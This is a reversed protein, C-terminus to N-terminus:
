GRRRATPQRADSRHSRRGPVPLVQSWLTAVGAIVVALVWGTAPFPALKFLRTLVPVEVIAVVIAAYVVAILALVRTPRRRLGRTVLLLGFEGILLTVFAFARAEAVPWARLSVLYSALVAAALTVGLLLPEVGDRGFLRASPDRPPRTMLDADPPDSEFVLSVIPQLLIQLLVLQVPLLLLPEDLLPIVLAALLLPPHFAILYTFARRLSDFIQRGIAVAGVITTFDDDLLVMTAAERAVETGRDGMAIGIDAARLSPADNIGDGTMAVVEHRRRLARVLRYKQEPRTRAFVNADAVISDLQEDDATQLEDGTVILDGGGPAAHPLGLGETVAHATGPHDGTIMVVRIGAERCRALADEVGPRVPDDFAILGVPTLSAEDTSRDGSPGAPLSGAAIAIVRM